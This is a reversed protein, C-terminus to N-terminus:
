VIYGICREKLRFCGLRLLVQLGGGEMVSNRDLETLRGYAISIMTYACFTGLKCKKGSLQISERDTQWSQEFFSGSVIQAELLFQFQPWVLYETHMYSSYYEHFVMMRERQM